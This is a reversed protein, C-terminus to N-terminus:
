HPNLFLRFPDGALAQPSDQWAVYIKGNEVVISAYYSGGTNSDWSPNRESIVDIPGWSNGDFHRYFIDYNNGCNIGKASLNTRDSWVTYIKEGEVAIGSYYSTNINTDQMFVTESIVQKRAWHYDGDVGMGIRNDSREESESKELNQAGIGLNWGISLVNLLVISVLLFAKIKMSMNM